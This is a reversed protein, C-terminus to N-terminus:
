HPSGDAGRAARALVIAAALAVLSAAISVLLAGDTGAKAIVLALVAPAAAFALNQPLSMRGVLTGYAAAGFLSLPLTMRLVTMIGNAGSWVLIFIWAGLTRDIPAALLALAPALVAVMAVATSLPRMRHGFGVEVLRAAITSAGSAAAIAVAEARGIGM